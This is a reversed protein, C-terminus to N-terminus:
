YCLFYIAFQCIDTWLCFTYMGRSKPEESWTCEIIRGSLEKMKARNMGTLTAFLVRKSGSGVYLNGLVELLCGPQQHSEM